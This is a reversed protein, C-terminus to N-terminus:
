FYTKYVCIFLFVFYLKKFLNVIVIKQMSVIEHIKELNRADKYNKRKKFKWLSKLVCISTDFLTIIYYQLILKKSKLFLFCSQRLKQKRWLKHRVELVGVVAIAMMAM